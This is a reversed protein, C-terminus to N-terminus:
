QRGAKHALHAARNVVVGMYVVENLGSGKRGAKIM